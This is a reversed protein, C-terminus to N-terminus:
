QRWKHIEEKRPHDGFGETGRLPLRVTGPSSADFREPLLSDIPHAALHIADLSRLIGRCIL